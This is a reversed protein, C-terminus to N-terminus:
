DKLISAGVTGVLGTGAGWGILKARTPNNKIWKQIANLGKQKVAKDNTIDSLNFLQTMDKMYKKYTNNPTKEAIFDQVANRFEKKIEKQLTPSGSFASEIKRDFEKRAKWLSEMDNKKLSKVFNDIISAKSKTLKEDSVLLDDFSELRKTLNNKLEGTNFIGNNKKLFNGVLKDKKEVEQILNHTNKVPDNGLLKKYRNAVEIEEKSMIYKDPSTATSPSIKGRRVFAQYEDASMDKTNPTVAKIHATEKALKSAKLGGSVGGVIGGLVGGTVAGGIAGKVGGMAIEGATKNDKLSEAVGSSAGYVGGVKAGQIAGQKVGAIVGTKAVASKAMGPLQGAGLVTTALQLSSGLVEKNTLDNPNLVKEREAGETAIDIGLDSLTRELHSVDEGVAKKEKIRDMIKTQIDIGQTQAKELEKNTKGMTLAQGLGQALEKGGTFNAINEASKNDFLAGKIKETTKNTPASEVVGQEAIKDLEPTPTPQFPTLDIGYKKAEINLAGSSAMKELNKAFDSDPNKSAYEFAERLNAM